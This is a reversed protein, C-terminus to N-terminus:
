ERVIQKQQHRSQKEVIKKREKNQKESKLRIRKFYRYNANCKENKMKKEEFSFETTIITEFTPSGHFISLRLTKKMCEKGHLPIHNIFFVITSAVHKAM